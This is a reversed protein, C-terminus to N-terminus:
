REQRVDDFPCYKNNEEDAQSASNGRGQNEKIINYDGCAIIFYNTSHFYHEPGIKKWVFRRSGTVKDEQIVKCTKTMEKAYEMVEPNKRPIEILNKKFVSVVKDMTETRRVTLMGTIEDSKSQAKLREQYDIMQVRFRVADRFERVKRTQPEYDIVACGVNFKNGLDFLDEFDSVRGMWIIKYTNKGM